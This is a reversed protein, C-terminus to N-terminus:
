PCAVAPDRNQGASDWGLGSNELGQVFAVLYFFGNAGAPPQEADVFVTDTPDADSEGVCRGHGGDPLGDDDADTLDALDGRYVDFRDAVTVDSWRLTVRDAEFWLAPPTTGDVPKIGEGVPWGSNLALGRSQYAGVDVPSVRTTANFDTGPAFAPDASGALVSGTRPWFEVEAPDVFAQSASGGDLFHTGDFPVGAGEVYNTSTLVGPDFLGSDNIATSGPNFIANNALVM